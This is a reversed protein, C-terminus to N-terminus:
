LKEKGQRQIYSKLLAYDACRRIVEAAQAETLNKGRGAAQIVFDGAATDSLDVTELEPLEVMPEPPMGADPAPTQLAKLALNRMDEFVILHASLAPSPEAKYLRVLGDFFKNVDEVNPRENM